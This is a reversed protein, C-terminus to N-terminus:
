DKTRRRRCPRCCGVGWASQCVLLLREANSQPADSAGIRPKAGSLCLEGDKPDRCAHELEFGECFILTPWRHPGHLRKEASCARVTRGLHASQGARNSPRDLLPARYDTNQFKGSPSDSRWNPSDPFIETCAIKAVAQERLESHRVRPSDPGTFGSQRATNRTQRGPEACHWTRDPKTGASQGAAWSRVTRREATQATTHRARGTKTWDM